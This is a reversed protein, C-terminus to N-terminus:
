PTLAEFVVKGMWEDPRLGDIGFLVVREADTM